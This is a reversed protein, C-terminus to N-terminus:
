GLVVMLWRLNSLATEIKQREGNADQKQAVALLRKRLAFEAVMVRQPLKAPNLEFLAALYERQWEPFRLQVTTMPYRDQAVVFSPASM